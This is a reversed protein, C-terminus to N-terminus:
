RLALKKGQVQLVEISPNNEELNTVTYVVVVELEVASVIEVFGIKLQEDNVKIMESLKCCDDMTASLAPLTVAEINVPRSFKPEIAIAENKVVLPTFVKAIRTEKLGFNLINIETSYIGRSIIASCKKDFANKQVGCVFKVNYVFRPSAVISKYSISQAM